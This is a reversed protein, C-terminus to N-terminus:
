MFLTREGHPSQPPPTQLFPIKNPSRPLGVDLACTSLRPAESVYQLQLAPSEVMVRESAGVEFGM